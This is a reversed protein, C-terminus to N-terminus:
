TSRTQALREAVDLAIERHQVPPAAAPTLVLAIDIALWALLNAVLRGRSTALVADLDSAGPHADSPALLRHPHLELVLLDPASREVAALAAALPDAGEANPTGADDILLLDLQAAAAAAVQSATHLALSQGAPSEGVAAVRSYALTEVEPTETPLRVVHLVLGLRGSHLLLAARRLGETLLDETPMLTSPVCLWHAHLQEAVQLAAELDTVRVPMWRDVQTALAGLQEPHAAVQQSCVVVTYDGCASARAITARAAATGDYLAVVTGGVLPAAWSSNPDTRHPQADAM